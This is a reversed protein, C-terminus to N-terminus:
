AASGGSTLSSLPAIAAPFAIVRQEPDLPVAMAALQRRQAPSRPTPAPLTVRRLLGGEEALFRLAEVTRIAEALGEVMLKCLQPDLTLGQDSSRGDEFVHKLDELFTTPDIHDAM